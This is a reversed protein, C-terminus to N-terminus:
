PEEKVTESTVKVGSTDKTGKTTTDTKKEPETKASDKKVETKTSDTNEKKTDSQNGCAAFFFVGVIFILSKM